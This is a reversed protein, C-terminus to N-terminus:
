KKPIDIIKIDFDSIEIRQWENNTKVLCSAPKDTWWGINQLYIRVGRDTEYETYSIRETRRVNKGGFKEAMETLARTYDETYDAPYGDRDFYIVRGSKVYSLLKDTYPSEIIEAKGDLAEKRDLTCYLHAKGLLLTGGNEVFDCLKKMQTEDASNWGTFFLFKYDSHNEADVDIIDIVGYPTETYYGVSREDIVDRYLGKLAELLTKDKEGFASTGGNIIYYYISNIDSDPYFVKLLEWSKEPSAKKWEEGSHGFVQPASFCDNGDYRGMIMAIDTKLRGRRENRSVFDNFRRQVELHDRCPKSFRDYDVYGNSFRWLGEETNIETVGHMYSLNLSIAYRLLHGKTELPMTSWQLAAHAGFGSQNRSRSMGRAAGFLLEHPGYMSEYGIWKYGAKFFTNFFPTVGTHRTAGDDATKKINELFAEYVEATNSGHDSSYFSKPTGDKAYVPSHRGYIGTREMKKSFVHYFTETEANKIDQTWYTYSGDMEHTQEGLFYESWLLKSEPSSNVGNLERGDIMLSYYIGMGSVLPIVTKWFENNCESNRGWRYNSRFTMLKGVGENVYWSLYEAFDDVDQTVCIADGTGTIVGDDAKDIVEISRSVEKGDQILSIKMSKGVMKPVLRIVNYGAKFDDKPLLSFSENCLLKPISDTESHILVGFPRGLYALRDAALLMFGRPSTILRASKLEFPNINERPYEIKIENDRPKLASSPISFEVGSFCDCTETKRGYFTDVGNVLVRFKPRETLSFGEGIWDFDDFDRSPSFPLAINREEQILYPSFVEAEGCFDIASLKIMAFAVKERPEFEVSVDTISESDSLKPEIVEDACERYYRSNKEGYYLELTLKFDNKIGVAKYKIGFSYKKHPFIGDKIMLYCSREHVYNDGNFILSYIGNRNILSDDLRRYYVSFSGETRRSLPVESQGVLNLKYNFRPDLEGKFLLSMSEGQNIHLHKDYQIEKAIDYCKLMDFNRKASYVSM